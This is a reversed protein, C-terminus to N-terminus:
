SPIRLAECTECYSQELDVPVVLEPTVWLPLTPLPKGLALSEEWIQLTGKEKVTFTRYAVAYLDPLERGNRATPLKLLELLQRHLNAARSTVIDVIMLSVGNQLYSACKIVFAERHDPRDKNAPSVLEVAAVLRQGAEQDLIQVEVATLDAFEVATEVTPRPPAWTATAAGGERTADAKYAEEVTAVDIEIRGGFYVNPIAVFQEPLLKRNLQRAISSAWDSHLGGWPRRARLPAHFHDLLPM